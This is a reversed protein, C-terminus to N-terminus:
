HSTAKKGKKKRRIIRNQITWGCRPCVIKQTDISAFWCEGCSCLLLADKFGFLEKDYLFIIKDKLRGHNLMNNYWHCLKSFLHRLQPPSSEMHKKVVELSIVNQILAIAIVIISEIPKEAFFEGRQAISAALSGNNIKIIKILPGFIYYSNHTKLLPLLQKYDTHFHFDLDELKEYLNAGDIFRLWNEIAEIRSNRPFKGVIMMEEMYDHINLPIDKTLKLFIDIRSPNYKLMCKFINEVWYTSEQKWDDSDVTITSTGSNKQQAVVAKKCERKTPLILRMIERCKKFIDKQKTILNPVKASKIPQDIADWALCLLIATHLCDIKIAYLHDWISKKLSNNQESTNYCLVALYPNVTCMELIVQQMKSTELSHIMYRIKDFQHPDKCKEAFFVNM